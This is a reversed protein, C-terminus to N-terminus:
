SSFTLEKDPLETRVKTEATASAVTSGCVSVVEAFSGGVKGFIGDVSGGGLGCFGRGVRRSHPRSGETARDWLEPVIM